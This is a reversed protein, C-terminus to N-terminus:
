AYRDHTAIRQDIETILQPHEALVKNTLAAGIGDVAGAIARAYDKYEDPLCRQKLPGLLAQLESCSRFAARVVDRAVDIDM